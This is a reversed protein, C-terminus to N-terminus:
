TLQFSFGKEWQWLYYHAWRCFWNSSYTYLWNIAMVHLGTSSMTISLNVSMM